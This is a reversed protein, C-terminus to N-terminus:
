YESAAATPESPSAELTVPPTGDHETASSETPPAAVGRMYACYLTFSGRLVGKASPHPRILLDRVDLMAGEAQIGHLFRVFSELTGEWERCEISFEYVDGVLVERGVQRRLIRVGYRDALADMRSLWHTDVQRGPEFVPMQDRVAEYRERWLPGMAILDRESARLSRLKELQESKESWLVLRDRASFGLIGFLIAFLTVIGLTQERRSLSM